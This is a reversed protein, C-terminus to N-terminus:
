ALLRRIRTVGVFISLFALVQMSDTWLDAMALFGIEQGVLALQAVGLLGLGGLIWRWGLAISGGRVSVYIKFATLVCAGVLLLFALQVVLSSTSAGTQEGTLSAQATTSICLAVAGPVWTFLRKIHATTM